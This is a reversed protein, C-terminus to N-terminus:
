KPLAIIVIHSLAPMINVSSATIVIKNLHPLTRTTPTVGTLVKVKIAIKNVEPRSTPRIM